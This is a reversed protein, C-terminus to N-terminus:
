EVCFSSTHKLEFMSSLTLFCSYFLFLFQNFHLRDKRRAPLRHRQAHRGDGAAWRQRTLRYFSHRKLEPHDDPVRPHDFDHEADRQMGLREMVALSRVNNWVAFSVIQDLGLKGFGFEVLAAAAETVYGKGWYQPALRWGIEVTQPPLTPVVDDPHLGAFGICTGTERLELATFGFGRRDIDSTLRELFAASQARSRRFPFFEMVQADSNITHFVDLDDPRWNRITLRRTTIPTM